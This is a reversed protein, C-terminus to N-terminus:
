QKSKFSKPTTKPTFLQRLCTRRQPNSINSILDDTRKGVSLTMYLMTFAHSEPRLPYNAVPAGEAGKKKNWQEASQTYYHAIYVGWSSYIINQKCSNQVKCTHTFCSINPSTIMLPKGYRYLSNRDYMKDDLALQYIVKKAFEKPYTAYIEAETPARHNFHKIIPGSPQCVYGSAGFFKWYVFQICAGTRIMDARIDSLPRDSVLYEDVDLGIVM